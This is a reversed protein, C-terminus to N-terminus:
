GNSSRRFCVGRFGKEVGTSHIFDERPRSETLLILVGCPCHVSSENETLELVRGCGYYGDHIVTKAM